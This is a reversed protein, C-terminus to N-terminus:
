EEGHELTRGPNDSIELTDGGAKLVVSGRNVTVQIGSNAQNAQPNDTYGHKTLCMKTITTNLSSNLGGALLAREQAQKLEKLVKSFKSKNKDKGWAWATEKNIELEQALGALSPIPDGLEQYNDLYHRAKDLIEHNYKTPRGGKQKEATLTSAM